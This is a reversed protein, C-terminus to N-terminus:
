GKRWKAALGSFQKEPLLWRIMVVGLLRLYDGVWTLLFRLVGRKHRWLFHTRTKLQFSSRRSTLLRFAEVPSLKRDYPNSGTSARDNLVVSDTVVWSTFGKQKARLVFDDDAFLHPFSEADFLGIREFANRPILTCMGHLLDVEQIEGDLAEVPQNHHVYRFRDSWRDRSRGAFFVVNPDNLYAVVSSLIGNEHQEAKKRLRNLFGSTAVNDDNLTLIYDVGQDLAEKVGLNCLGAWWLDPTARLYHTNPFRQQVESQTSDMSGADVVIMVDGSLLEGRLSELCRLLAACRNYTPIVVGIRM